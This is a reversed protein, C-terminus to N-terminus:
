LLLKCKNNGKEFPLPLTKYQATDLQRSQVFFNVGENIGVGNESFCEALSVAM